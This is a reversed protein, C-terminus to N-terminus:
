KLGNAHARDKARESATRGKYFATPLQPKVTVHRSKRRQEATLNKDGGLESLPTIRRKTNKM